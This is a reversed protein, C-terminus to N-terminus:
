LLWTLLNDLGSLQACPMKFTHSLSACPVFVLCHCVLSLSVPWGPVASPLFLYSFLTLTHSHKHTHTHSESLTASVRLAKRQTVPGPVPDEVSGQKRERLQGWVSM